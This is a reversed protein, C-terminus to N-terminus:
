VKQAYQDADAHAILDLIREGDAPYSAMGVSATVKLPHGTAGGVQVDGAELHAKIRQAVEMTEQRGSGPLIIAFEDGGYRAVRDGARVCQVLLEAMRRLAEDGTLHGLSDNIVKLGNVDVILIGLPMEREHARKLEEELKQYFHRHNSLGTLGDTVAESVAREHSKAIAIATGAHGAISRLIRVDEDTFANPTDSDVVIAGLVGQPTQIPVALESRTKDEAAVFRSDLTVDGVNLPERHTVSWGMLGKDVPLRLGRLDRPYGASVEVELFQGSDDLLGLASRNYGMTKQTIALISELLRDLDTILSIQEVIQSIVQVEKQDAPTIVGARTRVDGVTLKRTGPKPLQGKKELRGLVRLFAEVVWPDFQRNENKRLIKRAEAVPLAARYPRDSTIADFADAM